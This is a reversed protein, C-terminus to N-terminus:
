PRDFHPSQIQPARQKVGDPHRRKQLSEILFARRQKEQESLLAGRVFLRFLEPPLEIDPYREQLKKEFYLSCLEIDVRPLHDAPNHYLALLKDWAEREREPIQPLLYIAFRRYIEPAGPLSSAIEYYKVAKRYDPQQNFEMSCYWALREHLKWSQPLVGIAEELIRIGNEVSQQALRERNAETLRSEWLYSDRANCAQHWARLDWYHEERPQLRNCLAYSEEVLGWDGKMWPTVARLEMVSAVPSRFGGLTAIFLSQGLEERLSLGLPPDLLNRARLDATHHQELPLRAAGGAVIVALALAVKKWRLHM